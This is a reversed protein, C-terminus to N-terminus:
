QNVRGSQRPFDMQLLCALLGGDVLSTCMRFLVNLLVHVLSAVLEENMVVVVLLLMGYPQDFYLKCANNGEVPCGGQM